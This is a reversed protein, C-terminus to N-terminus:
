GSSAEADTGAASEGVAESGSAESEAAAESGSADSGDAESGSPDSGSADSGGSESHKKIQSALAAGTRLLQSALKAGPSLIQGVVISLQEERSPWKSIQKVEEAALPSGDMVGGRAEFAAFEKDDAIRTVEKALAVIDTAGWVMAQSGTSGEFAPALVTGETARRALSNKVVMLKIDKERLTRRLDTTRNASLGIVNVVLLEQVGDLERKLEEAVLDKVYKSM